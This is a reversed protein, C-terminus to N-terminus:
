FHHFYWTQFELCSQIKQKSFKIVSIGKDLKSHFPKSKSMNSIMWQCLENLYQHKCQPRSDDHKELEWFSL